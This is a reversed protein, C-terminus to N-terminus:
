RLCMSNEANIETEVFRPSYGAPDAARGIVPSSGPASASISEMNLVSVFFLRGLDDVGLMFLRNM